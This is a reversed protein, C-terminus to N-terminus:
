MNCLAINMHMSLKKHMNLSFALFPSLISPLVVSISKLWTIDNVTILTDLDGLIVYTYDEVLENCIALRTKSKCPLYVM